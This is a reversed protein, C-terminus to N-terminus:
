LKYLQKEEAFIFQTRCDPELLMEQEISSNLEGSREKGCHVIVAQRPNIKKIFKRMDSFDDHLSFDIKQQHYLRYKNNNTKQNLTLYIHPEIPTHDGILKNYRNLIPVSMSEIKRVINLISWDLYIPIGDKNSENLAKLFEIGKSLQPVCCMIYQRFVATQLLVNEANEYLANSDSVYEPHKAHLGCMIMTDIDLGDPVSCGSTLATNNLSYDGTYLIKKNDSEFLIMMAGPIHGAPFFTAQYSGFNVTQTFNVAIIKDLLSRAALMASEDTLKRETISRDYLQFESLIKTIPTMFVKANQTQKMLELLYGVHDTHAHSIFIQDIQNMSQVFPSTQLAYYDPYFETNKEKGTGADLLINHECFRLYYSSAGVRQGGGLAEFYINKDM